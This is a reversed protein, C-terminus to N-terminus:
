KKYKKIRFGYRTGNCDFVATRGIEFDFQTPKDYVSEKMKTKSLLEPYSSSGLYAIDRTNNNKM